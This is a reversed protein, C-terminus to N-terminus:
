CANVLIANVVIIEADHENYVSPPYVNSLINHPEKFPSHYEKSLNSIKHSFIDVWYLFVTQYLRGTKALNVASNVSLQLATCNTMDM